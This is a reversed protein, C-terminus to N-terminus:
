RLKTMVLHAGAVLLTSTTGYALGVRGSESTGLTCIAQLSGHQPISDGGIVPAQVGIGSELDSWSAGGPDYRKLRFGVSPGATTGEGSEAAHGVSVRAQVLFTGSSHAQLYQNVTSADIWTTQTEVDEFPFLTDTSTTTLSVIGSAMSAYAKAHHSYDSVCVKAGDASRDYAIVDGTTLFPDIGFRRPLIITYTTGTDPSNGSANACPNITVQDPDTSPNGTTVAVVKGWSLPESDPEMARMFTLTGASVACSSGTNLGGVESRVRLTDGSSLNVYVGWGSQNGFYNTVVDTSNGHWARNTEVVDSSNKQLITVWWPPLTQRIGNRTVDGRYTFLLHLRLSTTAKLTVTGTTELGFGALDTSGTFTGFQLHTTGNATHYTGTTMAIHGIAVNLPDVGAAALDCYDSVITYRGDATPMYGIVDGASLSPDRGDRRPLIVTRTTATDLGDGVANTSPNITCYDVNTTASGTTVGPSIVKGWLVAGQGLSYDSVVTYGGDATPMYALVDGTTYSPAVGSRRPLIVTYTTDTATADGVANSCPNVAAYDPNTSASGTTVATVKGWSAQGSGTETYDSVAVYHGSLSPMYALVDGATVSPSKGSRMPLQVTFTTGSDGTGRPGTAPHVTVLDCVGAGSSTTKAVVVGWRAAPPQYLYYQRSPVPRIALGKWRKDWGWKFLDFAHVTSKSDDSSFTPETTTATATYWNAQYEVFSGPQLDTTSGVVKVQNPASTELMPTRGGAGGEILTLARKLRQVSQEALGYVNSQQQAM